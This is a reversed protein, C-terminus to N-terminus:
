GPRGPMQPPPPLPTHVLRQLAYYGVVFVAVTAALTFLVAVPRSM